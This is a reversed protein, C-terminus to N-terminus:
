MNTTVYIISKNSDTGYAKLVGVKDQVILCCTNFRLTSYVNLNYKYKFM